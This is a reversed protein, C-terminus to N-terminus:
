QPPRLVLTRELRFNMLTEAPIKVEKGRTFLQTALGGGAGALAGVSAGKGGGFLAGVLAGLGTGGGVMEATRRNAGLGKKNNEDVDSSVVRYHKGSVTVSDLDLVLEPSHVAGGTGVSRVLLQAASGRPIAIGGATDPVDETIEASYVQGASAHRSDIKENTRVSIPTGISIVKAEVTAAAPAAVPPGSFILSEVDSLPFQYHVGQGDVFGLADQGGYEGSYVKGDRLTVTDASSTFVLTQVDKLPFQYKIGLRDTFNIQNSSGVVYQGSYSTGDRLVITDALAIPSLFCIVYWVLLRRRQMTSRWIILFFKKV